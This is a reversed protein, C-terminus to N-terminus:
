QTLHMPNIGIYSVHQSNGNSRCGTYGHVTTDAQLSDICLAHALYIHSSKTLTRGQNVTHQKWSLDVKGQQLHTYGGGCDALAITFLVGSDGKDEIDSSLILFADKFQLM